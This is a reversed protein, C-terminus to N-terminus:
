SYQPNAAQWAQSGSFSAAAAPATPPYLLAAIRVLSGIDAKSKTTSNTTQTGEGFRLASLAMQVANMDLGLSQLDRQLYQNALDMEGRNLNGAVGEAQMLSGLADNTALARAEGLQRDSQANFKMLENNGLAGVVGRQSLQRTLDDRRNAIENELPSVRAQIFPNENSNLRGILSNIRGIGAQNGQAFRELGAYADPGFTSDFQGTAPNASIQAGTTPNRGTFGYMPNVVPPPGTTVTSTTKKGGGFLSNFIGSM